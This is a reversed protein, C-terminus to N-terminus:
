DLKRHADHGLMDWLVNKLRQMSAALDVEARMMSSFFIGDIHTSVFAAIEDADVHTFEAAAVGDAIASSLIGREMSYFEKIAKDTSLPRSKPGSYDFVIKILKRLTRSLEINNEFWFEIREIPDGGKKGILEYNSLTEHVFNEITQHFLADKSDFYYYILSHRVGILRAIETTTVAAYDKEAFLDLAVTM